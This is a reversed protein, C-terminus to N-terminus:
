RAGDKSRLLADALQLDLHASLFVCCLPLLSVPLVFVRFSFSLVSFCLFLDRRHENYRRAKAIQPPRSSIGQNVTSGANNTPYKLLGVFIYEPLFNSHHNLFNTVNLVYEYVQSLTHCHVM